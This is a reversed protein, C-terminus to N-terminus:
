PRKETIELVFMGRCRSGGLCLNPPMARFYEDSGIDYQKGDLAICLDCTAGDLVESRTVYDLAIGEGLDGERVEEIAEARGLNFAQSGQTRALGELGQDGRALIQEEAYDLAADTTQNQRLADLYHQRMSNVIDDLMRDTDIQMVTELTADARELIKGLAPGSGATIDALGGLKVKVQAKVERIAEDHGFEMLSDALSRMAKRIAKPSPRKIELGAPERPTASAACEKVLREWLPRIRKVFKESHTALRDEIEALRVFQEEHATPKRWWKGPAPTAALTEARRLRAREDPDASFQGPDQGAAAGQVPQQLFTVLRAPDAWEQNQTVTALLKAVQEQTMYGTRLCWEAFATISRLGFGEGGLNPLRRRLNRDDVDAQDLLPLKFARRMAQEIDGDAQLAGVEIGRIIGEIDPATTDGVSLQPPPVNSTTPFNWAHLRNILQQVDSMIGAAIAAVHLNFYGAQVEGVARGGSSSGSQGLNQFATGSVQRLRNEHQEIAAALDVTNASMDMMKFKFGFPALVFATEKGGYTLRKLIREARDMEPGSVKESAEGYPIGVSRNHADIAFWALFKELRKADGYMHRILAIGEPDDGERWRAVILLNEVPIYKRHQETRTQGRGEGTREYWGHPTDQYIGRFVGGEDIDWDKISEPRMWSLRDVVHRLGLRGDQNRFTVEFVAFGFAQATVAEHIFQNTWSTRMAYETAPGGLLNSELLLRAVAKADEQAFDRASEGALKKREVESPMDPIGAGDAFSWSAQRLPAELQQLQAAVGSNGIRLRNLAEFRATPDELDAHYEEDFRGSTYTGGYVGIRLGLPDSEDILPESSLTTVIPASTSM